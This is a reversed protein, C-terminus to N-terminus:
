GNGIYHTNITHCGSPRRACEYSDTKREQSAHMVKSAAHRRPMGFDKYRQLHSKSQSMVTKRDKNQGARGPDKNNLVPGTSDQSPKKTKELDRVTRDMRVKGIQGKSAVLIGTQPDTTLRRGQHDHVQGSGGLEDPTVRMEPALFVVNGREESELQDVAHKVALLAQASASAKKAEEVLEAPLEPLKVIVTKDFACQM